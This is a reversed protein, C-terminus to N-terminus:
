NYEFQYDLVCLTEAQDYYYVQLVFLYENDVRDITYDNHEFHVHPECKNIYDLIEDLNTYEHVFTAESTDKMASLTDESFILLVDDETYDDLLVETIDSWYDSGYVDEFMKLRKELQSHPYLENHHSFNYQKVIKPKKM